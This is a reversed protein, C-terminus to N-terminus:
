AGGRKLLEMAANLQSMRQHNGFGSDPHHITALMRFRDRLTRQGPNSGPPFGLVHLADSRDLVGGSLPDFLLTDVVSRLRDREDQDAKRRAKEGASLKEPQGPGRMDLQLDQHDLALAVGLARRITPVSLGPSLRVQLRPKRRWPRGKAKGSKLVISERDASDPEGPDPFAEISKADLMLVVSRALDAVNVQRRDALAAIEDRFSSSCPITYSKKHTTQPM